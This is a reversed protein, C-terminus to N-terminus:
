KKVKAWRAKVAKTALAVRAKKSLLKMRAKGGLKGAARMHQSLAERYEELTRYDTTKPM